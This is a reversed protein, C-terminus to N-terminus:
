PFPVLNGYVSHYCNGALKEGITWETEFCSVVNRGCSQCRSRGHRSAANGDASARAYWQADGARYPRNGAAIDALRATM